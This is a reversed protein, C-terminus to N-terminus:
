SAPADTLLITAVRPDDPNRRVRLAVVAAPGLRARGRTYTVGDFVVDYYTADATAGSHPDLTATHGAQSLLEYGGYQTLRLLSAPAGSARPPSRRLRKSFDPRERGFRGEKEVPFSGFDEWWRVHRARADFPAAGDPRVRVWGGAEVAQGGDVAALDFFESEATLETESAELLAEAAAEWLAAPGMRPQWPSPTTANVATVADVVFTCPGGVAIFRVDAAYSTPPVVGEGFAFTFESLVAATTEVSGLVVDPDPGDVHALVEIRLTGSLVRASVWVGVERRYTAWEYDFHCYVGDGGGAAVVRLSKSGHAVDVEETTPSAAVDGNPADLAHWGKPWSSGWTEFISSVHSSPLLNPYPAVDDFRVVREIRGFAAVADPLELTQVPVGGARVFGAPFSPTLVQQGAVWVKDPPEVAVVAWTQNAGGYFHLSLGAADFGDFIPGRWNGEGADDHVGLTYRTRNGPVDVLRNSVHWRAKELTMPVGEDGCVPLVVTYLDGQEEETSLRAVNPRVGPANGVTPVAVPGDGTRKWLKGLAGPPEEAQVLDVEYLEDGYDAGSLVLRAKWRAGVSQCLAEVLELTTAGTLSVDARVGSFAPAVSGLVFMPAGNPMVPAGNRPDLIAALTDAVPRNVLSIQLTTLGADALTLRAASDALDLYLPRLQAQDDAEGDYGRNVREVRWAAFRDDGNEAEYRLRLVARITWLDAGSLGAPALPVRLTPAQGREEEFALPGAISGRCGPADLLVSERTPHLLVAEVLKWAMLLLTASM